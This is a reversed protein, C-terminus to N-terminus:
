TDMTATVGPVCSVDSGVNSETLRGHHLQSFISLAEQLDRHM